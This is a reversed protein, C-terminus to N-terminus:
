KPPYRIFAAGCKETLVKDVLPDVSTDWVGQYVVIVKDCQYYRLPGGLDVGNLGYPAAAYAQLSSVVQQTQTMNPTAHLLLADILKGKDTRREYAVFPTPYLTPPFAASITGFFPYSPKFDLGQQKLDALLPPIEQLNWSACGALILLVVFSAVGIALKGVQTVKNKPM